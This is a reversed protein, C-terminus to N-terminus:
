LEAFLIYNDNIQHLSLYWLLYKDGFFTNAQKKGTMKKKQPIYPETLLNLIEKKLVRYNKSNNDKLWKIINNKLYNKLENYCYFVQPENGQNNITQVWCTSDSYVDTLLESIQDETTDLSLSLNKLTDLSFYFDAQFTISPENMFFLEEDSDAFVFNKLEILIKLNTTKENKPIINTTEEITLTIKVNDITITRPPPPKNFTYTIVTGALRVWTFYFDGSDDALICLYRKLRGYMKELDIEGDNFLWRSLTQIENVKLSYKNNYYKVQGRVVASAIRREIPPEDDPPELERFKKSGLQSELEDIREFTILKRDNIWKGALYEINSINKQDTSVLNAELNLQGKTTLNQSGISVFHGPILIIKAHLGSLEYINFGLRLLTKITDLSSAGQNFLEFDFRTYIESNRKDEVLKLIDVALKTLYPSFVIVRGSAQKIEQKWREVIDRDGSFYYEITM